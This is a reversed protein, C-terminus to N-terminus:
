AMTAAKIAGALVERYSWRLVKKPLGAEYWTGYLKIKIVGAQSNEGTMVLIKEITFNLEEYSGYNQSRQVM